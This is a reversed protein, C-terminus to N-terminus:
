LRVRGFLGAPRFLLVAIFTGYTLLYPMSGSTVLSGLAEVVGILLGGILAGVFNGLSGLVVVIFATLTFGVGVSPAVYYFPALLPAVLGLSGAGICFALLYMREVPVGCLLAADRDEATARIDRGLRTKELFWYLGLCVAISVIGALAAPTRVIVSGLYFKSASFRSPITHLDASFLGLALNQLILSLGLTVLVQNHDPTGLIPRLLLRYVFAAFLTVAPLVLLMAVYPDIGFSSAAIYTLYLGVTLFDGHAFNLIRMVGFVMTLGVAVIAYVAGLLVGDCLVQLILSSAPM